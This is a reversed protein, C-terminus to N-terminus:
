NYNASRPPAACLELGILRTPHTDHNSATDITQMNWTQNSANNNNNINQDFSLYHKIPTTTPANSTNNQQIKEMNIRNTRDRTNQPPSHSKNSQLRSAFFSFPSNM